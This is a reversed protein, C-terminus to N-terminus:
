AISTAAIPAAKRKRSTKKHAQGATCTPNSLSFRPAESSPLESPKQHAEPLCTGTVSPKPIKLGQLLVKQEQAKDEKNYWQQLTKKNLLPLQIDTKEM